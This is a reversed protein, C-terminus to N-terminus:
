WINWSKRKGERTVGAVYRSMSESCPGLANRNLGISSLFVSRARSRLVRLAMSRVLDSM